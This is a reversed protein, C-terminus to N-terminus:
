LIPICAKLFRNNAGYIIPVAEPDGISLKNPGTRVIPGYKAHLDNFLTHCNGAAVKRLLYFDTLSALLPGPFNKLRSLYTAHAILGLVALLSLISVFILVQYVFSFQSDDQNYFTLFM